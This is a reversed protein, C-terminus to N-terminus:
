TMVHKQRLSIGPPWLNLIKQSFWKWSLLIGTNTYYSQSSLAVNAQTVKQQSEPNNVHTPHLHLDRFSTAHPLKSLNSSLSPLATISFKKNSL